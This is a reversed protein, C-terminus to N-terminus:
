KVNWGMGAPQKGLRAPRPRIPFAPPATECWGYWEQSCQEDSISGWQSLVGMVDLEYRTKPPFTVPALPVPNSEVAQMLKRMGQVVVHSFKASTSSFRNLRMWFQRGSTTLGQLFYMVGRVLSTM